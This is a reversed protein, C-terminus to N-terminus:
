AREAPSQSGEGRYLSLLRGAVTAGSFRARAAASLVPPSFQEYNDLMWDMADALKAPCEKPVLLGNSDDIFDEPGGCRTSVVPRGSVLSEAAAVSFTEYRSSIVSFHGSAFRAGIQVPSVRGSFEVVGSLGWRVPVAKWRSGILGMASSNSSSTEATSSVRAAAALLGSIDKSSDSMMSVNVIRKVSTDPYSTVEGLPRVVNPIVIPDRAFGGDVM